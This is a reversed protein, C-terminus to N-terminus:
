TQVKHNGEDLGGGRGQNHKLALKFVEKKIFTKSELILIGGSFQVWLSSFERLLM